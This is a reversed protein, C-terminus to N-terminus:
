ANYADVFCLSAELHKNKAQCLYTAYATGAAGEGARPTFEVAIAKYEINDDISRYIVADHKGAVAADYAGKETKLDGPAEFSFGLPRSIYSHWAAEVPVTMIALAAGVLSTLATFRM